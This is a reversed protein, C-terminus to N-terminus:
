DDYCLIGVGLVKRNEKDFIAVRILVACKSQNAELSRFPTIDRSARSIGFKDVATLVVKADLWLSRVSQNNDAIFVNWGGGERQSFALSVTIVTLEKKVIL